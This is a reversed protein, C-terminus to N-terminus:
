KCDLCLQMKHYAIQKAVNVAREFTWERVVDGILNFPDVVNYHYGDEIITITTCFQDKSFDVYWGLDNKMRTILFNLQTNM